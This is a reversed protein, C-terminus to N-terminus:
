DAEQKFEEEYCSQWDGQASHLSDEENTVVSDNIEMQQETPLENEIISSEPVEKSISNNNPMTLFHLASVIDEISPRNTDSEQICMAAVALAQYLPKVPFKGELSPDAMQRFNKKDM